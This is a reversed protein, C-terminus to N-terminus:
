LLERENWSVYLARLAPVTNASATFAVKFQAVQAEFTAKGFYKNYNTEQTLTVATNSVVYNKDYTMTLATSVPLTKYNLVYELFTKSKFDLGTIALTKFYAASYKNSWDIVDVGYTGGAAEKKWAVLLTTGVALMAGVELGATINPSPVYELMTALPYTNDHQGISYVGELCPDGSKNSVGIMAIGRFVCVSGPFVQMTNNAYTGKIKRYKQIVSGDYYYFQGQLGAQIMLYNDVPVLANVGTEPINKFDIWTPSSLDWRFLTAYSTTANAVTGIIVDTQFKEICSIQLYSPLSNMNTIDPTGSATFTGADDITAVKTANGIVLYLGQTVMPHWTATDLTQISATIVDSSVTLKHLATATAFYIYGMWEAAGLVAGLGAIGTAISSWTGNALRKKIAASDGFWYSAGNTCNVAFLPLTDVTAGSDKKLAQSVNLVGPESHIDLGVGLAVSGKTGYLDSDSLGGSWDNQAFYKSTRAKPM